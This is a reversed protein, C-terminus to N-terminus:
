KKCKRLWVFFWDHVPISGVIIGTSGNQLYKKGSQFYPLKSWHSVYLWLAARLKSVDAASPAHLRASSNKLSQRCCLFRDMVLYCETRRTSRSWSSDLCCGRKKNEERFFFNQFFFRWLATTTKTVLTLSHFTTAYVNSFLYLALSNVSYKM